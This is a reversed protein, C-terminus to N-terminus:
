RDAGSDGHQLQPGYKVHHPSVYYICTGYGVEGDLIFECYQQRQEGAWPGNVVSPDKLDLVQIDISLPQPSQTPSAGSHHLREGTVDSYRQYGGHYIPTVSLTHEEGREDTLRWELRHINGSSADVECSHRFSKLHVSSGDDQAMHGVAYLPTGDTLEEYWMSLTRRRFHALLPVHFGRRRHPGARRGWCHDRYAEYGTMDFNTGRYSVTGESCLLGQDTHCHEVQFGSDDDLYNRKDFLKPVHRAQLLFDYSFPLRDDPRLQTRYLRLPEIVEFTLPGVSLQRRDHPLHNQKLVVNYQTQGDNFMIWAQVTGKNPHFQFWNLVYPSDKTGPPTCVTTDHEFWEPEGRGSAEMTEAVQHTPFDDVPGFSSSMATQTAVASSEVAESGEWAENENSM